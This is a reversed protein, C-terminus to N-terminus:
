KLEMTLLCFLYTLLQLDQPRLKALEGEPVERDRCLMDPSLTLSHREDESKRRGDGMKKIIKGM